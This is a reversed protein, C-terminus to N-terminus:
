IVSEILLNAMSFVILVILIVAVNVGRGSNFGTNGSKRRKGCYKRGKKFGNEIVNLKKDAFARLKSDVSFKNNPLPNLTLGECVIFNDVLGIEFHKFLFALATM